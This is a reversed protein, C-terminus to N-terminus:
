SAHRAPTRGDSRLQARLWALRAYRHSRSEVPAPSAAEPAHWDQKLEAHREGALQRSGQTDRYLM